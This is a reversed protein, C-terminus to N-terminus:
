AQDTAAETAPAEQPRDHWDLTVLTAILGILAMGAGVAFAYQFGETLFSPLRSQDGGSDTLLSETHTTAITSLLFGRHPRM